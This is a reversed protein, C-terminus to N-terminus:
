RTKMASFLFIIHNTNAVTMKLMLTCADIAVPAQFISHVCVVKLRNFKLYHSVNIHRPTCSLCLGHISQNGTKGSQVDSFIVYNELDCVFTKKLNKAARCLM